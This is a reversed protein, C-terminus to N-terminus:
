PKLLYLFLLTLTTHIKPNSCVTRVLLLFFFYAMCFADQNYVESLVRATDSIVWENVM